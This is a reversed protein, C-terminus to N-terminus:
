NAPDLVTSQANTFVLVEPENAFMTLSLALCFLPIFLHRSIM